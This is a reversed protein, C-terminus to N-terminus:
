ARAEPGAVPLIVRFTTVGDGCAVEVAGGHDRAIDAVFALGLGTGKERTTFFPEFLHPLATEPIPAGRNAVALIARDGDLGATLRVLRPATTSAQIANKTLNLLARRLQGHDATVTGTAEVELAVGAAEAEPTALEAVEACLGALPVPGLEPRPRRAYDLFETVVRELYGLERAIRLAHGRRADDEDLEDKLLGTFLAMGALPNRVEHAIGALMQQLRADREGLQARMRDMTGALRGIEDTSTVVVPATLEGEGIRAAAAALQRVPRTVLAAVVFTAILIAAVLAAGWLLLNQRLDALLEFSEAPAQAAIALVIPAGEDDTARIPAYGAKYTRDDDGTFTVSAVTAGDKLVRGLEDRDLEAQYYHTGIAVGDATDVRSEFQADFVYLRVGTAAAVALLKRRANQYGRDAEAGPGLEVLYKGRVQTAASAAVSTLRAGLEDDLRDRAIEHAIVAFLGFLVATPVAFAVLLKVLITPRPRM